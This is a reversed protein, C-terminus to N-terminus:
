AFAALDQIEASGPELEVAKLCDEIADEAEHRMLHIMGMQSWVEAYDPDLDRARHNAQEAEVNSAEISQSWGSYAEQWHTWGLAIWAYPYKPDLTISEEAM